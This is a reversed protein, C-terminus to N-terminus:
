PLENLENKVDRELRRLTAEEDVPKRARRQMPRLAASWALLFPLVAVGAALLLPWALCLPAAYYTAKLTASRDREKEQYAPWAPHDEMRGYDYKRQFGDREPQFHRGYYCDCEPVLDGRCRGTAHRRLQYRYVRSWFLLYAGSAATLYAGSVGFALVLNPIVAAV